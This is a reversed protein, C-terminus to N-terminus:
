LSRRVSMSCKPRPKRVISRPLERFLRWFCLTRPKGRVGPVAALVHAKPFTPPIKQFEAPLSASPYQWSGNLNAARFWRGSTLFYYSRDGSFYFLDSDTNTVSALTLGPLPSLEPAGRLAILEAPKNVVIVKPARVLPAAEATLPPPVQGAAAFTGHLDNTVLWHKEYGQYLEWNTNVVRRMTTNEMEHMMPEGDLIVLVAPKTSVFIPPAETLIQAEKRPVEGARVYALIRDLAVVM